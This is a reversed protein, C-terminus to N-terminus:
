ENWFNKKNKDRDCKRLADIINWYELIRSPSTYRDNERRVSICYENEEFIGIDGVVYKLGTSYNIDDSIVAFMSNELTKLGHLTQFCPNVTLKGKEIKFFM